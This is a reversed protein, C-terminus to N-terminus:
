TSQSRPRHVISFPAEAYFPLNNELSPWMLDLEFRSPLKMEKCEQIIKRESGLLYDEESLIAGIHVVCDTLHPMAQIISRIDYWERRSRDNYQELLKM